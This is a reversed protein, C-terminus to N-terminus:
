KLQSPTNDMVTFLALRRQEHTLRKEMVHKNIDRAHELCAQRAADKLNFDPNTANSPNLSRHMGRLYNPQYYHFANHDLPKYSEPDSLSVIQNNYEILTSDHEDRRSAVRKSPPLVKSKLRQDTLIRHMVQEQITEDQEFFLNTIADVREEDTM